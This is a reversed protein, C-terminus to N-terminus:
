FMWCHLGFYHSSIINKLGVTWEFVIPLLTSNRCTTLRAGFPHAEPHVDQM